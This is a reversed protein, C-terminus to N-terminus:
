SIFSPHRNKVTNEIKDLLNNKHDLEMKFVTDFEKLRDCFQKHQKEYKYIEKRLGNIGELKYSQLRTELENLPKRINKIKKGSQNEKYKSIYKFLLKADTLYQSRLETLFFELERKNFSDDIWYLFVLLDVSDEIKGIQQEEFFPYFDAHAPLDDTYFTLQTEEMRSLYLSLAASYFEGNEKQYNSLDKVHSYYMKGFDLIIKEKQVIFNRFRAIRSEIELGTEYIENNSNNVSAGEQKMIKKLRIKANQFAEDMVKDCIFLLFKDSQLRAIVVESGHEIEIYMLNIISCADLIIIPRSKM